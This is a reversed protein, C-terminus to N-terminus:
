QDCGAPKIRYLERLLRKHLKGTPQRPLEAVFDIQRPLKVGSLRERMWATLASALEDSAAAPDVLQLVAIVREGMEEDPAGIVAADLVSPHTLLLNEIEQPYINVGGSIIMFSQRDTLYLYGDADIHGIDGLTTWGHQNRSAATKLPDNHYEFPPGDAFHILGDVGPLVPEGTEDCIELRGIVAKGVSGPHTLWESSTIMTMGNSETGAYYELLIPGWWDIMAVKVPLPCPAAAHIALKLSSVDYQARVADPLKQMRVFHTPVWQSHTVKYHEIVSLVNEADFKELLIFTGGLRHVVMAWRLPAAHYLPAPSLYRTDPGIGLHDRALATMETEPLIDPNAPLPPRVGKPQGTTGSSYLMDTGAREDDIPTQPFASAPDNDVHIIPVPALMAQLAAGALQPCSLLLRAGSDNVIYATEAPTLKTSIGVFYLGSRQAAWALALYLPDNGLLVAVADGDQLGHRRLLHAYRNATAELEAYTIINGTAPSIIAPRDPHAVAHARPHYIPNAIM